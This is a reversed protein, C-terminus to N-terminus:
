RPADHQRLSRRLEYVSYTLPKECYVHKGKALAALTIMAHAHDPTAVMVADIDEKDLLERYDAYSKIGEYKGSGKQQAYYEKMMRRVPERGALRTGTGQSWNWSLYGGGERNVDCVAVVQIEDFRQLRVMNQSGQGGTGIGALTIKDSPATYGMGGLVHRPVLAFVSAAGLGALFKRRSFGTPNSVASRKTRDSPANM